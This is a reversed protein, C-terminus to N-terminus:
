CLIFKTMIDPSYESKEFYSRYFYLCWSGIIIINDLVGARHLKKLVRLCLDLQSKEM